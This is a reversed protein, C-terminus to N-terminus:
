YPLGTSACLWRVLPGGDSCMTGYEEILDGGTFVKKTLKTMGVFDKRKLDEILPHDADFGRPNRKLSDGTLEFRAQFKKNDRARKWAAPHDVISQRYKTLTESDPHWTGTGAHIATTDFGLYFGPAHVDKGLEHRFQIGIHTKYPKKDRSFRTDRHIRFLSGGAKRPDAVFHKSVKELRPGFDTIFALAPGRVDSEYRNKNDQFWERNNNAELDGLFSFTAPSFYARTDM